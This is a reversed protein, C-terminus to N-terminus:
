QKEGWHAGQIIVYEFHGPIFTNGRIQDPIWHSETKPPLLQPQGMSESNSSVEKPKPQADEKGREYAEEEKTKFYNHELYGIGGGTLAGLASGVLINKLRYEGKRGPYQLLGAGAGLIAGTGAAAGLSGALTACGTNILILFFAYLKIWKHCFPNM